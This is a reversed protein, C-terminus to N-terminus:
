TFGSGVRQRSWRHTLNPEWWALREIWLFDHQRLFAETPVSITLEIESPSSNNMGLAHQMSVLVERPLYIWGEFEYTTQGSGNKFISNVRCDGIGHGPSDAHEASNEDAVYVAASINGSLGRILLQTGFSLVSENRSSYRHCFFRISFDTVEILVNTSPTDKIGDGLRFATWRMVIQPFHQSHKSATWKKRM